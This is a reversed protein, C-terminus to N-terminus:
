KGDPGSDPDPRLLAQSKLVFSGDTVVTEGAQLGDTIVTQGGLSPGTTVHRAEYRDAAKKVFVCRSGSFGQLAASPIIQGSIRGSAFLRTRVLMGPRLRIDPNPLLSRVLVRRTGPDVIGEVLTIASTVPAEGPTVWTQQMNGPTLHTADTDPVQSIVWVERLDDVETAPIGGSTINEGAAVGIRRVIGDVPSIVASILGSTTEVSSTFRAVRERENRVLAEQQAVLARADELRARRREAEGASVAGGRLAEARHSALAADRETAGAQRLAAEASLLRQREDSLSFDDYRFLVEGKRVIQGPTVLVERVRGSGAPHIRSIRREDAAITAQALTHPALAGPKAVATRIGESAVAEPSIIIDGSPWPEDAAALSPALWAITALLQLALRLPRASAM